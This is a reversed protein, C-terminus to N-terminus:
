KKKEKAKREMWQTSLKQAEAIQEKTMKKTLKLKEEQPAPPKQFVIIAVILNKMM